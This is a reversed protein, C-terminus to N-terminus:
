RRGSSNSASPSSSSPAPSRQRCLAKLGLCRQNHDLSRALKVAAQYALTSM